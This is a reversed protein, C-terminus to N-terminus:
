ISYFHRGGCYIKRLLLGWVNEISKLDPSCPQWALVEFKIKNFWNMTLKARHYPENDQQLIWKEHWFHNNIQEIKSKLMDAYKVADIRGDKFEIDGKYNSGFPAWFM